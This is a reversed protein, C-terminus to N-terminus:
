RVAFAKTLAAAVRDVGDRADDMLGLLHFFGHAQGAYEVSEVPVQDARLRRELEESEPRLFDHEATLLLVPAVGAFDDAHLPSADPLRRDAEHPLYAGWNFRMGQRFAELFNEQGTFDAYRRAFDARYSADLDTDVAPYVLVQLRLPLDAARARLAVAAALNGGASDGGVAVAGWRQAAWQTAEWADDVAAPYPHEPALRYDVSLVACGARRAIARAMADYSDSDGVIMGGGHLWVLVAQEGGTPLYLRAPVGGAEVRESVEVPEPEGAFQRSIERTLERASEMDTAAGANAALFDVYIQAQPSYVTIDNM